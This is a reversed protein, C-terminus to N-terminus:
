AGMARAERLALLRWEPSREVSLVELLSPDTVADLPALPGPAAADALFSAAAVAAVPGLPRQGVRPVDHHFAVAEVVPDPLGWLGLLYAGIEAHGVGLLAREEEQVPRGSRRARAVAERFVEPLRDLLVLKGCDHLLGGLFAADAEQPDDVLQRAIRATLRSHRELDELARAPLSRVPFTARVDLTFALHRLTPVGLRELAASVDLVSRPSGYCPSNALQLVRSALAADGEVLTAARAM